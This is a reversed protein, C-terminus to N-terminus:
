TEIMDLVMEGAMPLHFAARKKPEDWILAGNYNITYTDLGIAEYIHRVSRPPRATALVVKVDKERLSQLATLTRGSIKKDSSLLTGDLDVALLRIAQEPSRATPSGDPRAAGAPLDQAM